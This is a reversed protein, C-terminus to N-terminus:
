FNWVTSHIDKAAIRPINPMAYWSASNLTRCPAFQYITGRPSTQHSDYVEADLGFTAM